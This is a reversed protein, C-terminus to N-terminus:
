GNIEGNSRCGDICTKNKDARTQIIGIAFNGCDRFGHDGGVKRGNEAVAIAREDGSGLMHESRQPAHTDIVGGDFDITRFNRDHVAARSREDGGDILGADDGLGGGATEDLHQLRHLDHETIGEALQAGIGVTETGLDLDVEGIRHDAALAIREIQVGFAESALNGAGTGEAAHVVHRPEPARTKREARGKLIRHHEVLSTQEVGFAQAVAVFAGTM